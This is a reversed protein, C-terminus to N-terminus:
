SVKEIPKELIFSTKPCLLKYYCFYKSVSNNELIIAQINSTNM